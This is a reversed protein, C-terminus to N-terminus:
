EEGEKVPEGCCPCRQERRLLVVGCDRVLEVRYTHGCECTHDVYDWDRELNNM